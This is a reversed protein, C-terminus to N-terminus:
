ESNIDKFEDVMESLGVDLSTNAKYGLSNEGIVGSLDYGKSYEIVRRKSLLSLPGFKLARPLLDVIAAIPLAIFVPVKGPPSSGMIKHLRSFLDLTSINFPDSAIMVQASEFQVNSVVWNSIFKALDGEYAVPFPALGDGIIKFRRASIQKLIPLWMRLSNKGYIFGPRIVLLNLKYTESKEILIKEAEIKSITYFDLFKSRYQFLTKTNQPLTHDLVGITSIAVMKRTGSRNCANLLNLAGVVNVSHFKELGLNISNPLLAACNIVASAGSVLEDCVEPNEVSGIIVRDALGSISSAESENLALASIDVDMSGLQSLVTKGLGGAAGAVAIKLRTM